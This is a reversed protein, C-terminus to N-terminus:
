EEEGAHHRLSELLGDAEGLVVMDGGGAVVSMVLCAPDEGMHVLRYKPSSHEDAGDTRHTSAQEEHEGEDVENLDLEPGEGAPTEPGHAGHRREDNEDGSCNDDVAADNDVSEDM